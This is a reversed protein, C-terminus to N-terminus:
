LDSVMVHGIGKSSQGWNRPLNQCLKAASQDYMRGNYVARFPHRSEKFCGSRCCRWLRCWHVAGENDQLFAFRVSKETLPSFVTGLLLRCAHLCVRKLSIWQGRFMWRDWTRLSSLLIGSTNWCCSATGFYVVHIPQPVQLVGSVLVGSPAFAVSCLELEKLTSVLAHFSM